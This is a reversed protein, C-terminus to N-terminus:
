ARDRKYRAMGAFLSLADAAKRNGSFDRYLTHVNVYVRESDLWSRYADLAPAIDVVAEEFPLGADYRSRAEVSLLELYALTEEIGTKDTLPGHGPVVTEVDLALLRRCAAVWNAVPGEWVIPHADKFVLDGTFVVRDDPLYVFADGRTHAPGVEIVEVSKDGVRARYSGEFVANPLVSRTWPFDFDQFAPIALEAADLLQEVRPIGARRLWRGLGRGANGCALAMRGAGLLLAMRRPPADELDRLTGRTAVIRAGAVLANGYCHDGNGHTNVVTGIRQAAPTAKRMTELMEATIALDFLTDVLLSEGRSALLGANSWGWSGPLQTYAWVDEGVERLTKEITSVV